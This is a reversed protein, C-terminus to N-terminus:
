APRCYKAMGDELGRGWGLMYGDAYGVGYADPPWNPWGMVDSCHERARVEGEQYGESLGTAHGKQYWSRGDDPPEMVAPAAGTEAIPGASSHAAIPCLATGAVLAAGLIISRTRRAMRTMREM